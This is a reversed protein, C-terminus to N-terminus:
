EPCQRRKDKRRAPLPQGPLAKNIERIQACAMDIPVPKGFFYGQGIDCGTGQLLELQKHTEVGEVVVKAGTKKALVLVAEIVSLGISDTDLDNVFARDIKIEDWHFTTLYSLSSYGTGFDDLALSVGLYRLESLVAIPQKPDAMMVSETVELKLRDPPLRTAMLADATTEMIEGQMIQIVSLNVAVQVNPPLRLADKCACAIMHKGIDVIQGSAEAIPIFEDPPIPGLQAHHWRALAEVGVVAGTVLDVQIQYHPTIEGKGIADRLDNELTLRREVMERLSQDYVSVSGKKRAKAESQALDADELLGRANQNQRTSIAIGATASITVSSGDIEFPRKLAELARDAITQAEAKDRLHLLAAFEDGGLRAVVNGPATSIIEELRRAAAILLKDGFMHGWTDNILKFGDLDFVIVATHSADADTPQNTDPFATRNALGTLPDHHALYAFKDAARGVQRHARRLTRNQFASVILMIAASALATVVLYHQTAQKETLTQRIAAAKNVASDTAEAGIKEITAGVPALTDLLQSATATSDLNSMEADVSELLRMLEDYARGSEPNSALFEGYGGVSWSDLRGLLIQYYLKTNDADAQRGLAAYRALYAELQAAEIRGHAGIWSVDFRMSNRVADATDEVVRAHLVTAIGLVVIIVVAFQRFWVFQLM